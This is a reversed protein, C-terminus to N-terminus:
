QIYYCMYKISLWNYCCIKPMLKAPIIKIPYLKMGFLGARM